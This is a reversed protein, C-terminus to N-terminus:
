DDDDDDDDDDDGLVTDTYVTLSDWNLGINADHCKDARRLVERCQEDTIPRDTNSRVDDIHWTITIEDESM